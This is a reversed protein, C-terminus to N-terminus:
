AKEGILFTLLTADGITRTIKTTNSSIALKRFRSFTQTQGDTLSKPVVNYAIEQPPPCYRAATEKRDGEQAGFASRSLTCCEEGSPQDRLDVDRGSSCRSILRAFRPSCRQGRKSFLKHCRRSWQSPALKNTILRACECRFSLTM